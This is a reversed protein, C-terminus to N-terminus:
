DSKKFFILVIERNDVMCYFEYSDGVIEFELLVYWASDSFLEVYATQLEYNNSLIKEFDHREIDIRYDWNEDLMRAMLHIFLGSDTTFPTFEPTDQVFQYLFRDCIQEM